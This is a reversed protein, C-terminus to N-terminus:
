RIAIDSENRVGGGGGGGGGGGCGVEKHWSTDKGPKASLWASIYDNRTKRTQLPGGAIDHHTGTSLKSGNSLTGTTIQKTM